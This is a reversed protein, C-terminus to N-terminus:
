SGGGPDSQNSEVLEAIRGSGSRVLDLHSMPVEHMNLRGDIMAAWKSEFRNRASSGAPLDTSSIVLDVDGRYREPRYRYAATRTIALTRRISRGLGGADALSTISPDTVSLGPNAGPGAAPENSSRLAHVRNKLGRWIRRHIGTFGPPHTDILLLSGIEEGLNQMTRAIEIAVTGGLSYGCLHYPGRPDIGRIEELMTFAMKEITDDPEERGDVGRMQLGVLSRRGELHSAIDRYTFAALGGVGPLCFLRTRERDHSIWVSRDIQVQRGSGEIRDAIRTLTPESMLADIGLPAGFVQHIRDILRIALFSSGGLEFFDDFRGIPHVELLDTWIEALRTELLTAPEVHVRDTRPIGTSVVPIGEGIMPDFPLDGVITEPHELVTELMEVLNELFRTMRERRFLSEDYEIKLRVSGPEIIARIGLEQFTNVHADPIREVVIGDIRLTGERAVDYCSLFIPMALRRRGVRDMELADIVMDFPTDLRHFARHVAIRTRELISRFSEELGIRCQIVAENSFNGIVRELDAQARNTLALGTTSIADGGARVVVCGVVANIIPITGTRWATSRESLRSSTTPSLTTEVVGFTVERDEDRSRDTPMASASPNSDIERRWADIEGRCGESDEWEHMRRCYEAFSGRSAIADRREDPNGDLLSGLEELLVSASWGDFVVHHTVIVMFREDTGVHVVLARLLRGAELDIPDAVYRRIEADIAARPEGLMSRHDLRFRRPPVAQQRIENGEVLFRTRLSPHRIVIEQLASELDDTELPGQLHHVIRVHDGPNTRGGDCGIQFRQQTRTLPRAVDDRHRSRLLLMLFPERVATIRRRAEEDFLGEPADHHIRTGVNWLRIGRGRLDALLEKAQQERDAITAPRNM